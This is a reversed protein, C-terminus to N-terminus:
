SGAVEGRERGLAVPTTSVWLGVTAPQLTRAVVSTLDDTLTDVDVQRHVAVSFADLVSTMEYRARNFRREVTRQVRGRLPRFLAAVALTSAAVALDSGDVPLVAQLGVVLTVYVLGLMGIVVTYSVTRRLLRDIDFLRYRIVAITVAVPLSWFALMVIVGGVLEALPGGGPSAAFAIASITWTASGLFWKLQAREVPSAAWWRRAVVVFGLLAFVVLGGIGRRHVDGVWVPGVGLPNARGTLPLPDPNIVGLVAFCAIYTWLAVLMWRHARGIPRGTPFLHLLGLIGGFQLVAPISEVAEAWASLGADPHALAYSSMVFIAGASMAVVGLLRGITNGPRRALLLAATVPFAMLGMVWPWDAEHGPFPWLVNLALVLDIAAAWAALAWGRARESV